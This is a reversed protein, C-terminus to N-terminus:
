RTWFDSGWAAITGRFLTPNQPVLGLQERLWCPDLGSVDAESKSGKLRSALHMM